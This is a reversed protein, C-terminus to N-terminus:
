NLIRPVLFVNIVHFDITTRLPLRVFSRCVVVKRLAAREVSPLAFYNQRSSVLWPDRAGLICKKCSCQFNYAAALARFEQYSGSGVICFAPRKM